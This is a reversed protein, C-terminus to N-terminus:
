LHFLIFYTKEFNNNNDDSVMLFLNKKLKTLGEYNDVFKDKHSNLIKLTKSKCINSSTCKHLYIKNITINWEKKDYDFDRQIALLSNNDIIELATIKGSSKFKFIKNKTTYITHYKKDCFPSEPATIFGLKKSYTLSELADNKSNYNNIDRLIKPLKINKIKIGDLSYKDVRVADEFSIYLKNKLYFM